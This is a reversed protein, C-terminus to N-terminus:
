YNRTDRLEDRHIDRDKISQRKDYQRKGKCLGIEVKVRGKVLYFKLPILTIGKERVKRELKAIEQKHALLKRVREADHNFVGAYDYPTIHLNRIFLEGKRIEAFSDPFSFRGAKISKVETGKLVLGCELSEMVTYNFRAKRNDGLLNSDTKKKKKAGM